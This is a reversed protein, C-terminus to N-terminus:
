EYLKKFNDFMSEFWEKDLIEISTPNEIVNSIIHTGYIMIENIQGFTTNWIDATINM